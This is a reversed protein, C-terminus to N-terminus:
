SSFSDLQLSSILEVIPKFSVRHEPIVGHKKIALLHGSTGYGKHKGFSYEPHEVDLNKMYEDRSVKAIISAAAVSMIKSDAKVLTRTNPRDKLYNFNGDVVLEAGEDVQSMDLARESALISAQTLGLSDIEQSSAWGLGIKSKSNVIEKYLSSRQKESLKKSDDLGAIESDLQVVAVTIPGAWPGRGAEDLGAINTNFDM